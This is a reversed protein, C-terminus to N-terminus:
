SGCRRFEVTPGGREEWDPIGGRLVPRADVGHAALVSAAIAARTGSECITVIPRDTPLGESLAGVLRFPIHRSGAIYGADREEAERVDVVEVAGEALLRELEDLDIPELREGAGAPDILYGALKFVGVARLGRAAQQAQERSDAQIAVATEDLVFAARTAFTSGDLPVNLAGQLHGAAFARANRVDLVTAGDADDIRELEPQVGLFPGRNLEVIRDMNPPRPANKALANAVFDDLERIRLAPNIRRERGITSSPDSSMSAGCLSGAVHGPYVVVGEPLEALRKLSHFLGEAGEAAGVALDPRAADGVFLSDGTLVLEDDVLLACHEPRHGPTHLVRMTVEGVRLDDGDEIAEFPYAPEALPHISVGAGHELALRGHGSVHDAHNHTEVVRTIRADWCEAEELYQEIAYAPDVVVAEGGKEDAILYSACGLDPDVFQKFRV